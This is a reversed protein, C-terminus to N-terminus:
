RGLIFETFIGNSLLAFVVPRSDIAPAIIPKTFIKGIRLSKFYCIFDQIDSVDYCIHHIGNKFNHVTSTDRCSEILEINHMEDNSKLFAIKLHQNEDIVIESSQTYGLQKYIEISKEINDIIIGTHHIKM